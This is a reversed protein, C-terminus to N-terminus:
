TGKLTEPETKITCILCREYQIGYFFNGTVGLESIFSQSQSLNTFWGLETNRSFKKRPLLDEGTVIGVLSLLTDSQSLVLSPADSQRSSWRSTRPWVRLRSSLTLGLPRLASIAPGGTRPGTPRWGPEPSGRAGECDVCDPVRM